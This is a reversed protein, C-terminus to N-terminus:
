SSLNFPFRKQVPPFSLPLLPLSPSCFFASLPLYFSFPHSPEDYYIELRHCKKEMVNFKTSFTQKVLLACNSVREVMYVGMCALVLESM